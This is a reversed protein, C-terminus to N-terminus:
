YDENDSQRDILANQEAEFIYGESIRKLLESYRSYGLEEAKEAATNYKQALAREAKGESDVFHAGRQNFIGLNYGKRIEEADSANLTMCLVPECLLGDEDVPAYSLGNGVTQMAVEYRDNERAWLKVKQLWASFTDEHFVGGWDTGPIARFRYFVHFLRQAWGPSIQRNEKSPVDEHRKKYYLQLLSCFFEADNALRCILARPRVPSYDNLWPLYILEIESLEQINLEKENQLKRILTQVAHFDLKETNETTAAKILIAILKEASIPVEGHIHGCVNVAAVIRGVELLQDVVYQVDIDNARLVPPIAIRQWFLQGHEPLLIPVTIILDQSLYLHSLVNSILEANCTQLGATSLSQIDHTAVFGNIISHFFGEPFQKTAMAVWISPMDNLPICQGLKYGVDYQDNVAIGFEYVARLGQNGYIEHIANQKKEEKREWSDVPSDDEQLLYEDFNSLYLRRYLVVPNQPAIMEITSCLLKYLPTEPPSDQDLLIQYKLDSLRNWLPFKEEDNWGNANELIGTLYTEISSEDFYDIYEALDKLRKVDRGALIVAVSTYYQNLELITERSITREESISKCIYKPKQTGGTVTTVGPLLSRIVNWGIDPVEIQLAKIANKQKQISALTQPSWPLLISTIADIAVMSQKKDLLVAAMEGLCRICSVLYKEDWALVEISWIVGYIFNQAFLPDESGQPFLRAIETGSKQIYEEFEVLYQNPNIEAILPLIDNLSALRMWDCNEFLTHILRRSCQECTGESCVTLDLNSNLLICLGNIIGRRLATSNQFEGAEPILFSFNGDQDFRSNIQKLMEEATSFVRQVIGDSFFNKCLQLIEVRNRIKWAGNKCSIYSQSNNILPRLTSKLVDYELGTIHEVVEIDSENKESWSGILALQVWLESPFFPQASGAPLRSIPDVHFLERIEDPINDLQVCAAAQNCEGSFKLLRGWVNIADATSSCKILSLILMQNVSSRFDLDFVLLVFSKCFQWIQKENPECGGNATALAEKLIAFKERAKDSTFNSQQIRVAFDEENGSALAQEYIYRFASISDKAIIGTALVIKDTGPHFSDKQFDSWAANIVNKFLTSGNSITIDHKIQCLIKPANKGSATIILDDTNYGLRKGQFDLQVIKRELIPSFGDILLTLLFVTQVYREFNGGGGGTSFSNSLKAIEMNHEGRKDSTFVM